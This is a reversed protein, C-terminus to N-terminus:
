LTEGGLLALARKRSEYDPMAREVRLWFEPSHHPEILHVLEHVVIYDVIKAPLLISAWHFNVNGRKGCSGWRHGLDRVEIRTPEVGIRDQWLAVRRTLWPRAHKAHWRIFHARADARDFRRLVFRGDKLKLPVDQEEVLHLRYNRGLYQFSEGEVYERGLPGSRLADKEALKTYVWFQKERIFAQLQEESVEKPGRVILEGGRDVTIGLSKRNSSRRVDFVLDNVVLIESM